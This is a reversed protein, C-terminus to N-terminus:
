VTYCPLHCTVTVGWHFKVTVGRHFKVTVNVGHLVTPSMDSDCGLSIESDCVRHFKVTVNVGHLVTPSM